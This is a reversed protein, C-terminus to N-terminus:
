RAGELEGALGLSFVILAAGLAAAMAGALRRAYRQGETGARSALLVAIGGGLAVLGIGLMILQGSTM